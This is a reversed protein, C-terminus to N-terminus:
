SLVFEMILLDTVRGPGTVVQIRRLMQARLRVLADPDELSAIEVARLYGNLVDVIRPKIAEVEAAYAPPVELQASFRLFNRGGEGPLSIVLPDIPVFSVDVDRADEAGSAVEVEEVESSAGGGLMGSQVAFFGGGGGLLALVLGLLLPLKSAKRPADQDVDADTTM